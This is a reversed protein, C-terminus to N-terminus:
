RFRDNYITSTNSRNTQKHMQQLIYNPSGKQYMDALHQALTTNDQVIGRYASQSAVYDNYTGFYDFGSAYQGFPRTSHNPGNKIWQYKFQNAESQIPGKVANYTNVMDDKTGKVDNILGKADDIFDLANVIAVGAKLVGSITIAM